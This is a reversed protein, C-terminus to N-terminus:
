VEETEEISAWTRHRLVEAIAELEGIYMLVDYQDERDLEYTLKRIKDALEDNDYEEYKSLLDDIQKQAVARNFLDIEAQSMKVKAM